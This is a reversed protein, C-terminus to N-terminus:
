ESENWLIEALQQYADAWLANPKLNYLRKDLTFVRGEQVATLEQWLPNEAFFREMNEQTGEADDGLQVFFIYDPDSLLIHELSLNELLSEQSDAINVCGLRALMEGLVSGRSNKARISSASARLYLVRPAHGTQEVQALSQDVIDQIDQQIALGKQEYLDQRGTIDTCIKLLRLYDEFDAVDFYATPIGTAELTPQWQLDQQTNASAIIFDPQASLLAELNKEKTKGLNVADQGLPLGFDDWADDASAIVTGGALVWVDAFSGLLCAVRQPQRSLRVTRGLDDVFSYAEGSGGTGSSCGCLLMAALILCIMRKM